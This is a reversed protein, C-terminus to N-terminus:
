RLVDAKAAEFSQGILLLSLSNCVCWRGCTQLVTAEHSRDITVLTHKAGYVPPQKLCTMEYQILVVPVQGYYVPLQKLSHGSYVPEVTCLSAHAAASTAHAAPQLNATLM